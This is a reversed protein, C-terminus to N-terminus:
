GAIKTLCHKIREQDERKKNDSEAYLEILNIQKKTMIAIFILRTRQSNGLAACDLRMKVVEVDDLATLITAKKSSLFSKKFDENGYMLDIIKQATELDDPM